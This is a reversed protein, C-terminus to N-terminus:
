LPLRTCGSCLLGHSRRLPFLTLDPPATRARRYFSRMRRAFPEPRYRDLVSSRIRDPDYSAWQDQVARSARGPHWPREDARPTGDRGDRHGGGHRTTMGAGHGGLAEYRSALAFDHAKQLADRVASRDVQGRLSVHSGTDLRRAQEM